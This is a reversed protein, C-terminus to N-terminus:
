HFPQLKYAFPVGQRQFGLCFTHTHAPPPPFDGEGVLCSPHQRLIAYSVSIEQGRRVSVTCGQLLFSHAPNTYLATSALLHAFLVEMLGGTEGQWQWLCVRHCSLVESTTISTRGIASDAVVQTSDSLSLSRALM